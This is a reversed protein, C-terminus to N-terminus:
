EYTVKINLKEGGSTIDLKNGYYIKQLLDLAKLKLQLETRTPEEIFALRNLEEIYKNLETQKDTRLQEFYVKIYEKVNPHQLYRAGLSRISSNKIDAKKLSIKEIAKSANYGNILYENVFIRENATLKDYIDEINISTANEM